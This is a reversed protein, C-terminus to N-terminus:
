HNSYHERHRVFSTKLDVGKRADELVADDAEKLKPLVAVVDELRERPIVCLVREGEDACLVDGPKVEVGGIQLPVDVAWPKAELSTGVSSLAKSWIQFGTNGRLEACSVVDRSRGNIVAGLVGRAQLRTAIIDGLLAVIQNDPQQLIAM